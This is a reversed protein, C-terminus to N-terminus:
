VSAIYLVSRQLLEGATAVLIVGHCLCVHYDNPCSEGTHRVLDTTQSRNLSALQELPIQIAMLSSSAPIRLMTM